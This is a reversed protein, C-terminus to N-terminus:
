THNTTITLDNKTFVLYNSINLVCYSNNIHFNVYAHNNDKRSIDYYIIGVSLFIIERFLFKQSYFTKCYWM